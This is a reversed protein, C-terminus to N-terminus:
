FGEHNGLGIAIGYSWADLLDDEGQDEVTASFGLVQSLLHNRTEGHYTTERYYADGCIKVQEAHVYGAVNLARETKGMRTLATDIPHVPWGRMTAQQLLVTGSVKDEIWVGRSGRLPRCIKAYHDLRQLVSPLYEILLAGDIQQVDYDLLTLPWLIQGRQALAWYCVGMGDHSRGSKLATDMTAFVYDVGVPPDCPLGEVLISGERFFAGAPSRLVEGEWVHNYLAQLHAKGVSDKANEIRLLDHERELVLEKPFWPNDNWNIKVRRCHPPNEVVFRRYTEDSELTPNFCIWFESTGHESRITPILTRWSEVSIKQAEEVLCVDIDAASQIKGPDSKIGAFIFESRKKTGDRLGYKPGSFEPGLISERQVDFYQSLGLAAIRIMLLRHISERISGQIERVCLVRTPRSTALLLAVDAFGYSKGSGRGGYAIKYRSPVYVPVGNPGKRFFLDRLKPPLVRTQPPSQATAPHAQTM